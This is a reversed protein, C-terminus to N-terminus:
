KKKKSKCEEDTRKKFENEEEIYEPKNIKKKIGYNAYKRFKYKTWAVPQKKRKDRDEKFFQERLKESPKKLGLFDSITQKKEVFGRKYFATEGINIKQFATRWLDEAKRIIEKMEAVCWFEGKYFVIKAGCVCQNSRYRRKHKTIPEIESVFVM